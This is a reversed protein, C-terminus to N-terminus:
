QSRALGLTALEVYLAAGAPLIEDNFDYRPHHPPFGDGSGLMGYAGPRQALMFGFDESGMILAADTSVNEAGLLRTAAQAYLDVASADNITPAFITRFSVHATAGYAAATQTAIQTLREGINELLASEFCRVTGGLNVGHPVVNYANTPAELRTVSLVASQLPSLNRSVITQLALVTQAAIVVPDIGGEPRAAHTGVGTIDIDFFAGAAMLPGAATRFTGLPQGPSNHMGFIMDCPFRDFLGDELMAQAGGLGEEAPQFIFIVTGDFNRTEALYRATGLLMATHGDHGCAHMRNPVRSRYSLHSNEEAMPLADMDARLGISRSSTGQQLVGIVGTQGVGEYVAIGFSRLADAVLAATRKEEFGIEPHAHLDHRIERMWNHFTNIREFATM